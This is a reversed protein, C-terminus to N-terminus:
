VWLYGSWHHSFCLHQLYIYIYELNHSCCKRSYIQVRAQISSENVTMFSASPHSEQLALLLFLMASLEHCYVTFWGWVCECGACVCVPDCGTQDCKIPTQKLLDFVCVLHWSLLLIHPVVSPARDPRCVSVSTLSSSALSLLIRGKRKSATLPSEDTRLIQIRGVKSYMNEQIQQDATISPFKIGDAM